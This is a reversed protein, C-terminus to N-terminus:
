MQERLNKLLRRQVNISTEARPWDIDNMPINNWQLLQRLAPILHLQGPGAKDHALTRILRLSKLADFWVHFQPRMRAPNPNNKQLRQWAASFGAEVLFRGLIGHVGHARALLDEATSRTKIAADALALWDKLVQYYEPHFREWRLHPSQQQLRLAAGTGFPVRHSLRPSPYVRAGHIADVPGTKRLQQLFYFDEGANRRNMGGAAAYAECSCAMTSGIAHFAYPSNAYRLGLEHYRLYLEYAIIDEANEGEHNHAYEFVAGWAEKRAFHADAADLYNSSVTADADLCLIAGHPPLNSLAWDMGLKRAAGVGENPALQSGPTAADIYALRLNKPAHIMQELFRLTIRNDQRDDDSADARNNVVCCVLTRRLIEPNCRSLSELTIPLTRSEALAPIVVALELGELPGHRRRRADIPNRKLYRVTAPTM